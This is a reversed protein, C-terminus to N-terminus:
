RTEGLIREPARARSTPEGVPLVVKIRSGLLRDAENCFKRFEPYDKVGVRWVDFRVVLEASVGGEISELSLSALGFRGKVEGGQPLEARAGEPLRITERVRVLFPNNLVLDHRRQSLSALSKGYETSWGGPVLTLDRGRQVGYRPAEIEFSLRVPSLLDRPDSMQLDLVKAGPLDQAVSKEFKERRDAPSEYLTRYRPANVGRVVSTGKIRASGDAALTVARVQETFNDDARYRPTRARSAEGASPDILLVPVDQDGTPLEGPGAFEATGDLYLDLEPVYLIAHNLSALSAPFDPLRGANRTRLAVLRSDVGALALLSAMLTAKDKCDGFGRTLVKPAAYPKYSHLGFELGVYRTKQLVFGHIAEVKARTDSLGETLEGVAKRMEDDPAFQDKILGAYWRGLEEWSDSTSVHVLKAVEVFGPMRPEPRIPELDETRFISVREEGEIREEHEIGEPLANFYIKRGAPTHLVYQMERVPAARQFAVLEGFQDAFLNEGRDSLESRIEVVDGPQLEPLEVVKARVDYYLRHAPNSLSREYKTTTQDIGGDARFVRATLIRMRQREPTFRYLQRRHEEAGRTNLVRFVIQQFRSALGNSHVRTVKLDWLVDVADEEGLSRGAAAAVLAAADKEYAEQFGEASPTLSELYETLEPNQPRLRLSEEFRARAPEERGRRRLLHGYAEHTEAAEPRLRLATDLAARAEPERDNVDLLNALEIWTAHNGPERALYAEIERIRRDLDGAAFHRDMLRYIASLDTPERSNLQAAARDARAGLDLSEAILMVERCVLASRQQAESLGQLRALGAAPLGAASLIRSLTVTALLDGPRLTLARRALRAADFPRGADRAQEALAVLVYPNDPDARHALDLVGRARNADRFFRSAFLLLEARDRALALATEAARVELEEDRDQPGFRVLADALDLLDRATPMFGDVRGRLIALLGAPPPRDAPGPRVFPLEVDAAGRDAPGITKLAEAAASYGLGSLPGGDPRTFRLRAQWGDDGACTKILLPAPRKADLTVTIVSQDFGAPHKAESSFVLENNLWAAVPGAAGLRLVAESGAEVSVATALYACVGQGPVLHQALDVMGSAALEDPFAHWRVPREKGPYEADPEFGETEPPDRREFGVRGEDDFPGIVQFSRAVGIRDLLAAESRLDGRVRALRAALLRAHARVLPHANQNAGTEALHQALKVDDPLRPRLEYMRHLLLVAGPDEVTVRIERARRELLEESPTGALAALPLCALLLLAPLLRKM